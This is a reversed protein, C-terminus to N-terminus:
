PKNHNHEGLYTVEYTDDGDQIKKWKNEQQVIVPVAVNTTAEVFHNM